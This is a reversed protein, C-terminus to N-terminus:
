FRQRGPLDFSWQGNADLKTIFANSFGRLTGQAPNLTPFDASITVGVIYAEGQSDVAVGRAGENAVTSTSSGGLYTAYVIEPDIVLPRNRDYNGLAFALIKRGASEVGEIIKYGGDVEKRRGNIEQYVRPAQQRITGLDTSMVLDGSPDIAVDRAGEVSLIIRNPDAGPAVIFDYELRGEYNGYYVLNIGPYVEEYKVKAYGSVQTRWNQRNDGILYNTVGPLREIGTVKSNPNAGEIKLRIYFSEFTPGVSPGAAKGM